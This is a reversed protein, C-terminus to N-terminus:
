FMFTLGFKVQDYMLPPASNFPWNMKEERLEYIGYSLAGKLVANVIPAAYPSTDIIEDIFKDLLGQAAVEILASGAWKWFLHRPFIAAREYGAEISINPIPNIRLGAEAHTGFRFSDNFYNAINKDFNAVPQEIMKLRSWEIGGSHYPIIESVGFKYGYGKEWGFGFRWLNTELDPNLASINKLDTTTNGIYFYNYKHWLVGCTGPLTDRRTYGLKLEILTPDAFKSGFNKLKIQSIGYLASITPRSRNSFINFKIDWDDWGGWEDADDDEDWNEWDEWKDKAKTSDTEQSFVTPAFWVLLLILLLFIKSKM